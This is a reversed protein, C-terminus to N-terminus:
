VRCYLLCVKSCYFFTFHFLADRRSNGRRSTTKQSFIYLKAHTPSFKYVGM